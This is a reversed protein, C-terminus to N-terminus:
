LTVAAINKISQYASTLGANTMVSQADSSPTAGFVSLGTVENGNGKLCSSPGGVDGSCEFAMDVDVYNNLFNINIDGTQLFAWYGGCTVNRVVNNSDRFLAGSNDHYIAAYGAYGGPNGPKSCLTTSGIHDLYNQELVTGSGSGLTYIGGGDFLVQMVDHVYNARIQNGAEYSPSAFWGFDIATYSANAVENHEIQTNATYFVLISATGAYEVGTQSIYNNNISHNLSQRNADTELNDDPDGLMIAGASIDEFVNGQIVIGQSGTDFNLGGAGLHLLNDQVFSINKARSWSIASPIRHRTTAHDPVANSYVGSLIEAFGMSTDPQLWTKYAFTIGEFSINQVFQPNGSSDLTGSGVILQEGSGAVVKATSLDEGSRPIYYIVNASRDLYWDGPNALFEYANELWNLGNKMDVSRGTANALNWCPNQILIEGQTITSVPCRMQVWWSNMVAEINEANKWQTMHPIDVKYGKTVAVAGAGLTPNGAASVQLVLRSRQARIGNVYLQRTDFGAPVSAEYINKASDHLAWDGILFGGALVPTNGATAVYRVTYGNFGSDGPTFQLPSSLQYIGSTLEVVLDKQMARNNRRVMLQATALSCPQAVSCVQGEGAASVCLDAQTSCTPTQDDSAGATVSGTRVSGTTISGATVSGATVPETTVPGPKAGVKSIVPTTSTTVLTASASTTSVRVPIRPRPRSGSETVAESNTPAGAGDGCATISLIAGLAIINLWFRLLTSM